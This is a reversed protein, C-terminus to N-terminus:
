NFLSSIFNLFTLLPFGNSFSVRLVFNVKFAVFPYRMWSLKWMLVILFSVNLKIVSEAHVQSFYNFFFSVPVFNLLISQFALLQIKSYRRVKQWDINKLEKNQDPFTSQKKIWWKTEWVSTASTVLRTVKIIM